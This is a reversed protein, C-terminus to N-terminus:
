EADKNAKIQSVVYAIAEPERQGLWRLVEDGDEDPFKVVAEVVRALGVWDDQAYARQVEELRSM